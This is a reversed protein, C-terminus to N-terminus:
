ACPEEGLKKIERRLYEAHAADAAAINKRRREDHIRDMQQRLRDSASFM